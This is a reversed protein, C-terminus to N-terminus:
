WATKRNIDAALRHQPSDLYDDRPSYAEAYCVRCMKVQASIRRGCECRYVPVNVLKHEM